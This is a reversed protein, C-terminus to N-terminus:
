RRSVRVAKSGLREEVPGVLAVALKVAVVLAVAVLEVPRFRYFSRTTRAPRSARNVRSAVVKSGKSGRVAAKSAKGM